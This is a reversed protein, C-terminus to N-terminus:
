PFVLATRYPEYCQYCKADKPVQMSNLKTFMEEEYKKNYFAQDVEMKAFNITVKTNVRQDASAQLGFL